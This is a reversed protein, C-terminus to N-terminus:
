NGNIWSRSRESAGAVKKETVCQKLTGERWKGCRMCSVRFGGYNNTQKFKVCHRNEFRRVNEYTTWSAGKQSKSAVKVM